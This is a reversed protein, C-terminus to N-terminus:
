GFQNGFSEVIAGVIKDYACHGKNLLKTDMPHRQRRNMFRRVKDATLERVHVMFGHRILYDDVDLLDDQYISITPVGLVAAERTMTGGAGIFLDCDAIIEPLSLSKELVDIGAFRKDKYHAAQQIGRPLLRIRYTQQLQMLVDDLFNCAGKYYQANWPEPRIYITKREDNRGAKTATVPKMCWLYVGEKVGPYQVISNPRAGQRIVKSRDLHEPVMVTNACLFSIRNGGAHENDNLYICRVGLLRAVVPSYFSSHSVAVDIERHRLFSTLQYIRVPFGLLKYFLRKGYHRGIRHYAFREMDLLEITNSLPRCTILVEHERQLQRIMAAFFQVHPSNTIDIWIKM